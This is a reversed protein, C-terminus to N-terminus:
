KCRDGKFKSSILQVECLLASFCILEGAMRAIDKIPTLSDQGFAIGVPLPPQNSNRTIKLIIEENQHQITFLNEGIQLPFTPAFHGMRSRENIPKGNVIVKAEPSATGILFIKDSTTQHNPLPYAIFLSKKTSKSDQQLKNKDEYNQSMANPSIISILGLFIILKLTSLSIIKRVVQSNIAQRTAMLLPNFNGMNSKKKLQYQKM